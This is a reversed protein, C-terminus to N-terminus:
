NRPRLRVATSERVTLEGHLQETRGHANGEILDILMKAATVGQLNIPNKFTSLPPTFYQAIRIDDFGIVSVDEPVMYGADKLANVCGIASQDNGCIFADPLKHLRQRCFINVTNYTLLEEFYGNMIYEERVPLGFESMADMFGQKRENSDYVDAAGEIFAIERHGLNILHKAAVYGAYHSDFVVSGINSDSYARDLLVARIHNKQLLALDEEGIREGEFIFVGDFRKGFIQDNIVARNRSIIVNLTYGLDDCQNSISEILTTFYEGSVSSTILGLMNNKGSKLYRGSLNPTYNLERAVDLVRKRTAENVLNSNNLANSVTSISVGAEKAVDKITVKGM